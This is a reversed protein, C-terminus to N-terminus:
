WCHQRPSRSGATGQGSHPQPQEVFRVQPALRPEQSVLAAQEAARLSLLMLSKTGAHQKAADLMGLWVAHWEVFDIWTDIACSLLM